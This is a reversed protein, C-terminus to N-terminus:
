QWSEMERRSDLAMHLTIRDAYGISGGAPLGYSLRTMKVPVDRMADQIVYATMDGEVRPSLALIIERAGLEEVRRRLDSLREAPISQDELPSCRGGLVHYLGDFIGSQEIAIRDEQTEVVCITSRDRTEDSCVSCLDDTTMSGCERCTKINEHLHEIAHAFEHAWDPSQELMFFVMRRATKEGIGPFRGWMELLRGFADPLKM